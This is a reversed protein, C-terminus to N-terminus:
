DIRRKVETYKNLEIQLSDIITKQTKITEQYQLKNNDTNNIEILGEMIVAIAFVVILAVIIFAFHKSEM